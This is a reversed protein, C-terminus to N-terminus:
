VVIAHDLLFSSTAVTSSFPTTVATPAPFAIISAFTPSNVVVHSTSTFTGRVPISIFSEVVNILFWDSIKVTVYKGSSVVDSLVTVQVDLSSVTATTSSFPLTVPNFSPLATIVAFTPSNVDSQVTSTLSILSSPIAILM